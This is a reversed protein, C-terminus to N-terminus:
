ASKRARSPHPQYSKCGQLRNYVTTRHVGLIKAAQEPGHKKVMALITKTHIGRTQQQRVLGFERIACEISGQTRELTDAIEVATRGMRRLIVLQQMEEPTWLRYFNRKNKRPNDKRHKRSVRCACRKCIRRRGLPKTKDRHFREIPKVEDCKRCLRQLGDDTLMADHPQIM